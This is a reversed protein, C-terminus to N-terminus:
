DDTGLCIQIPHIVETAVKKGGCRAPTWKPMLGLVRLYENEFSSLAESTHPRLLRINLISGDVDVIFKASTSSQLDEQNEPYKFEKIIFRMFAAMGGPYSPPEDVNTWINKRLVSDVKYTCKQMSSTHGIYQASTVFSLSVLFGILYLREIM